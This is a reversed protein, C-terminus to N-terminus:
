QLLAAAVVAAAAAILSAASIAAGGTDDETIAPAASPSTTVTRPLCSAECSERTGYRNLSGDCGGYIFSECASTKENFFFSPFQGRCSGSVAPGSCKTAAVPKACEQTKGNKDLWLPNCDCAACCVGGDQEITPNADCARNGQECPAVKCNFAPCKFLPCTPKPPKAPGCKEMCLEESEFSNGTKENCGGFIYPQCKQEQPSFFFRQIAARCM